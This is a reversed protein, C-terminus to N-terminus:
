ARTRNIFQAIQRMWAHVGPHFLKAAGGDTTLWSALFEAVERTLSCTPLLQQTCLEMLAEDAMARAVYAKIISEILNMLLMAKAEDLSRATNISEASRSAEQQKYYRESLDCYLVPPRNQLNGAGPSAGTLTGGLGSGGSGLGATISELVIGKAQQGGKRYGGAASQQMQQQQANLKTQLASLSSNLTASLQAAAPTTTAAAATTAAAVRTSMSGSKPPPTATVSSISNTASVTTATDDKSVPNKRKEAEEMKYWHLVQLAQKHLEEVVKVALEFSVCTWQGGNSAPDENGEGGGGALEQLRDALAADVHISRTEQPSVPAALRNKFGGSSVRRVGGSPTTSQPQANKAETTMFLKKRDAATAISPVQTLTPDNYPSLALLLTIFGGDEAGPLTECGERQLDFSASMFSQTIVSNIKPACLVEPGQASFFNVPLAKLLVPPVMAMWFDLNDQQQSLAAPNNTRRNGQPAPGRLPTLQKVCQQRAEDSYCLYTCSPPSTRDQICSRLQIVATELDLAEGPPAVLYLGRERHLTAFTYALDQVTVPTQNETMSSHTSVAQSDNLRGSKKSGGEQSQLDTYFSSVPIPEWQLGETLQGVGSITSHITAMILDPFRDRLAHLESITTEDTNYIYFANTSSFVQQTMQNVLHALIVCSTAVPQFAGGCRSLLTGLELLAVRLIRYDHNGNVIVSEAVELLLECIKQTQSDPLSAIVDEATQLEGTSCFQWSPQPVELDPMSLRDHHRATPMTSSANSMFNLRTHRRGGANSNAIESFQSSCLLAQALCLKSEILHTPHACTDYQKTLCYICQELIDIAEKLDAPLSVGNEEVMVLPPTNNQKSRNANNGGCFPHLLLEASLNMVAHLRVTIHSNWVFGAMMSHRTLWKGDKKYWDSLGCFTAHTLLQQHAQHLIDSTYEMHLAEARVVMRRLCQMAVANWADFPDYRVVIQRSKEILATVVEIADILHGTQALATARYLSFMRVQYPDNVQECLSVAQQAAKEMKAFARLRFYNVTLGMLVWCWHNHGLASLFSPHGAVGLAQFGSGIRHRKRKVAAAAGNSSIVSVASPRHDRNHHVSSTGDDLPSDEDEDVLYNYESIENELMEAAARSYGRQTTAMAKLVVARHRLSAFEEMCQQMELVEASDQPTETPSVLPKLPSHKNSSAANKGTKAKTSLVATSPAAFSEKQLFPELIFEGAKLAETCATRPIVAKQGANFSGRRGRGSERSPSRRGVDSGEKGSSVIDYPWLYAAERGGLQILVEAVAVVIRRSLLAGYLECISEHLYTSPNAASPMNSSTTHGAILDVNMNPFCDAVFAMVSQVNAPSTPLEHDDYIRRDVGGITKSEAAPNLTSSSKGKKESGTTSGTGGGGALHCGVVSHPEPMSLTALVSYPLCSGRCISKMLRMAAGFNGGEASARARILRAEITLSVHQEYRVAFYEAVSAMMSARKTYQYKSLQDAMFLLSHSVDAARRRLPEKLYKSVVSDNMTFDSFDFLRGPFNLSVGTQFFQAVMACAMLYCDMAKAQDERYVYMALSSLICISILMRSLGIVEPILKNLVTSRWNSLVRPIEVAADLAELWCSESETRNRHILFVNGMELLCEALAAFDRQERLRSAARHYSSLVNKVTMMQMGPTQASGLRTNVVNVFSILEINTSTTSDVNGSEKKFAMSPLLTRSLRQLARQYLPSYTYWEWSSRASDLAKRGLSAGVMVGEYMRLLEPTSAGINDEINIAIPLLLSGFRNQTLENAVLCLQITERQAFFQLCSALFHVMEVVIEEPIDNGLKLQRIRAEVEEGETEVPAEFPFHILAPCNMALRRLTAHAEHVDLTCYAEGNRHSYSHLTPFSNTDAPATTLDGETPRLQLEVAQLSPLVLSFDGVIEYLQKSYANYAAMRSAYEEEACERLRRRHVRKTKEHELPALRTIRREEFQGAPSVCSFLSPIYGQFHVQESLCNFSGSKMAAPQIVEIDRRHDSYGRQVSTLAYLVETALRILLPTLKTLREIAPESMFLSADLTCTIPTPTSPSTSPSAPAATDMCPSPSASKGCRDERMALMLASPVDALSNNRLEDVAMSVARIAHSPYFAYNLIAAADTCQKVLAEHPDVVGEKVEPPAGAKRGTRASNPGSTVSTGANGAASAAASKSEALAAGSFHNHATQYLLRQEQYARRHDGVTAEMQFTAGLYLKVQGAMFRSFATIRRYLFRNARRRRIWGLARTVQRLMQSEALNWVRTLDCYREVADEDAATSVPTKSREEKGKKKQSGRRSSSASKKKRSAELAQRREEAEKEEVLRRSDALIYGNLALWSFFGKTMRNLFKSLETHRLQIVELSQLGIRRALALEDVRILYEMARATVKTHLLDDTYKALIDPIVVLASGAGGSAALALVVEVMIPPIGLLPASRTFADVKNRWEEEKPFRDSSLHRSPSSGGNHTRSHAALPPSGGSRDSRKSSHAQQSPATSLLTAGMVPDNFLLEEMLELLEVPVQDYVHSYTTSPVFQSGAFVATEPSKTAAEEAAAAAAAAALDQKSVRESKKSKTDVVVMAEEDPLIHQMTQAFVHRCRMGSSQLANFYRLQRINPHRYIHNWVHSFATYLLQQLNSNTREVSIPLGNGAKGALTCVQTKLANLVRIALFQTSIDQWGEGEIDLLCYTVAVLPQLIHHSYHRDGLCPLLCHFILNMCPLVLGASQLSSVRKLLRLCVLSRYAARIGTLQHEKRWSWDTVMGLALGDVVPPHEKEARVKLQKSHMVESQSIDMMARCFCIIAMDSADDLSHDSMALSAVHMVDSVSGATDRADVGQLVRMNFSSFSLKYLMFKTTKVHNMVRLTGAISAAFGWIMMISFNDAASPTRDCTKQLVKMAAELRQRRLHPSPLLEAFCLLVIARLLVDKSSANLIRAEEEEASLPLEPEESLLTQLIRADKATVAGFVKTNSQREILQTIDEKHKVFAAAQARLCAVHYRLEVSLKTLHTRCDRLSCAFALLGAEESAGISGSPPRLANVMNASIVPRSPQPASAVTLQDLHIRAENLRKQRASIMSLSVRVFALALRSRELLKLAHEEGSFRKPLPLLPPAVLTGLLKKGVAGANVKRLQDTFKHQEVLTESLPPTDTNAPHPETPSSGDSKQTSLSELASTALNIAFEGVSMENSSGSMLLGEITKVVVQFYAREEEEDVEDETRVVGLRTTVDLQEEEEEPHRFPVAILGLQARYTRESRRYQISQTSSHLLFRATLLIAKELLDAVGVSISSTAGMIPAAPYYRTSAGGNGAAGGLQSLAAAVPLLPSVLPYPDEPAATAQYATAASTAAANSEAAAGDADEIPPSPAAASGKPEKGKKGSVDVATQLEEQARAERILKTAITVSGGARYFYSTFDGHRPIHYENRLLVEDLRLQRLRFSATLAGLKLSQLMRTMAVASSVMRHWSSHVDTLRTGAARSEPRSSSVVSRAKSGGVHGSASPPHAAAAPPHRSVAQTTYSLFHQVMACCRYYLSERKTPTLIYLVNMLAILEKQLGDEVPLCYPKATDSVVACKAKREKSAVDDAEGGGLRTSPKCHAAAHRAFLLPFYNELRVSSIFVPDEAVRTKEVPAATLQQLVATLNKDPAGGRAGESKAARKGKRPLNKASVEVVEVPPAVDVEIRRVMAEEDAESVPNTPTLQFPFINGDVRLLEARHNPDTFYSISMYKFLLELAEMACRRIGRFSLFQTSPASDKQKGSSGKSPKPAAPSTVPDGPISAGDCVFPSDEEAGHIVLLKTLFAVAHEEFQRAVNQTHQVAEQRKAAALNELKEIPVPPTTSKKNSRGGSATASAILEKISEEESRRAASPQIPLQTREIVRWMADLLDVGSRPVSLPLSNALPLPSADTQITFVSPTNANTNNSMLSSQSHVASSSLNAEMAPSSVRQAAANSILDYWGYKMMQLSTHHAAKELVKMWPPPPAVPDALEIEQLARVARAAQQATRLADTYEHVEEFCLMMLDYLQLRWPLYKVTSLKLFTKYRPECLEVCAALHHICMLYYERRAVHSNVESGTERKRIVCGEIRQSMYLCMEYVFVTGNFIHQYGSEAVPYLIEKRLTGDSLRLFPLKDDRVAVLDLVSFGEAVLTGLGTLYANKVMPTDGAIFDPVSIMDYMRQVVKEVQASANIVTQQLTDMYPDADLVVYFKVAASLIDYQAVLHYAQVALPLENDLLVEHNRGEKTAGGTVSHHRSPRNLPDYTVVGSFPKSPSSVDPTGGQAPAPALLIQCVARLTQVDAAASDLFIEEADKCLGIRLFTAALESCEKVFYIMTEFHAATFGPEGGSTSPTPLAPQAKGGAGKETKTLRREKTGGRNGRRMVAAAAQATTVDVPHLVPKKLLLPEESTSAIFQRSSAFSADFSPGRAKLVSARTTNSEATQRGGRLPSAVAVASSGAAATLRSADNLPAAGGAGILTQQDATLRVSLTTRRFHILQQKVQSRARALASPDIPSAQADHLAVFCNTDSHLLSQAEVIQAPINTM